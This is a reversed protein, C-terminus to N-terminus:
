AWCNDFGVPVCGIDALKNSFQQRRLESSSACGQKIRLVAGYESALLRSSAIGLFISVTLRNMKEQVFWGKVEYKLINSHSKMARVPVFFGAGTRLVLPPLM